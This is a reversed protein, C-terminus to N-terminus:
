CFLGYFYLIVQIHYKLVILVSTTGYGEAAHSERTWPNRANSFYFRFNFLDNDKNWHGSGKDKPSGYLFALL